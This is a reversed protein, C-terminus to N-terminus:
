PTVLLRKDNNINIEVNNNNVKYKTLVFSTVTESVGDIPALKQAVFNAVEKMTKGNIIVTFEYRGSMLYLDSVEDNNAIKRAVDDYGADKTPKSSVQIIATVKDNNTKSWNIVTHYGCIIKEDELEKITNEVNEPSENLIDSLDSISIRANDALTNLLKDSM